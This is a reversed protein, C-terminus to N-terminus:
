NRYMGECKMTIADRKFGAACQEREACRYSGVTNECIQMPNCVGPNEICEDRDAFCYSDM